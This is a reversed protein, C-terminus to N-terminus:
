NSFYWFNSLVQIFYVTNIAAILGLHTASTNLDFGLALEFASQFATCHVSIIYLEGPLTEFM